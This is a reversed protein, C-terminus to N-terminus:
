SAVEMPLRVRGTLLQQMMGTKIAQVKALRECLAEIAADADAIVLAIARQEDADPLRLTVSSIYTRTTALVKTGAALRLLANRFEPIFQLSAKFGDALVAKDFRAAITHLGAVLGDRPISAIEVSKGVGAPDESADAFVLDGVQLRGARSALSAAARPMDDHAADLRVSGTTHIDGYHLYKLPSWSDLQARSLAVTKVYTVHDGLKVEPWPEAFGPLRNQGTLLQQMLGQKIAEKKAILRELAAVLQDIDDLTTAVRDQEAKDPYRFRLTRLTAISLEQRTTGVAAQQLTSQAQDSRLLHLWFRQNHEGRLRVRAIDRSINGEFGEPVLGVRGTTGKVSILVDGPVVRSRRYAAEVSPSSRHATRTSPRLLDRIALV